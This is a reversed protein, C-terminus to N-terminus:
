TKKSPTIDIGNYLDAMQWFCNFMSRMSESIIKSKVIVALNEEFAFYAVKDDYINLEIHFDMLEKPLLRSVRLEKDDKKQREQSMKTKPFIAKILIGAAKRRRYYKRIYEGFHSELENVSAIALIDTKSTLTDEYAAIIGEKGEYFAIEPKTFNPNVYQELKPLSKRLQLLGEELGMKKTELIKLIVGPHEATFFERQSSLKSVFGRDLLNTLVIMVDHRSLGTEKAIVKVDQTGLKLCALYVKAELGNLGIKEFVGKLM